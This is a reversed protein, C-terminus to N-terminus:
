AVKSASLRPGPRFTALEGKSAPRIFASIREVAVVIVVRRLDAVPTVKLSAPSLEITTFTIHLQFSSWGLLVANCESELL